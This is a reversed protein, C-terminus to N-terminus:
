TTTKGMYELRADDHCYQLQKELQVFTLPIKKEQVENFIHQLLDADEPCTLALSTLTRAYTEADHDKLGLHGALWLGFYKNRKSKIKFSLEQDHHYKAELAQERQNIGSAM